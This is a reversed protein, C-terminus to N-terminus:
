NDKRKDSKASELLIAVDLKENFLDLFAFNKKSKELKVIHNVRISIFHLHPAWPDLHSSSPFHVQLSPYSFFPSPTHVPLHNGKSAEDYLDEPQSLRIFKQTSRPEKTLNSHMRLTM